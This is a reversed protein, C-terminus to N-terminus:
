SFQMEGSSFLLRGGYGQIIRAEPNFRTEFERGKVVFSPRLRDILKPVSENFIFAEDVLSCSRVGELRLSEPVHAASGALRDGEIAVLLKSDLTRAFKFLRIHGPHLVNFHGVVLVPM